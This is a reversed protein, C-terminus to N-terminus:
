NKTKEILEKLVKLNNGSLTGPIQGTNAHVTFGHSISKVSSPKLVIIQFCKELNKFTETAKVQDATINANM